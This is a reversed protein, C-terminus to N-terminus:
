FSRKVSSGKLGGFLGPSVRWVNGSLVKRNGVKTMEFKGVFTTTVFVGLDPEASFVTAAGMIALHVVAVVERSAARWDFVIVGITWLAFGKRVGLGV